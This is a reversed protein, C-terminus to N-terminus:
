ERHKNTQLKLPPTAMTVWYWEVFLAWVRLPCMLDARPIPRRVRSRSQNRYTRTIDKAQFICRCRTDSVQKKVWQYVLMLVQSSHPMNLEVITSFSPTSSSISLNATRYMKYCSNVVIINYNMLLMGGPLLFVPGRWLDWMLHIAANRAIHEM